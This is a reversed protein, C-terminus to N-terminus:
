KYSSLRLVWHERKTTTMPHNVPVFSVLCNQALHDDPCISYQAQGVLADQNHEHLQVHHWWRGNSQVLMAHSWCKKPLLWRLVIPQFWLFDLPLTSSLLLLPFCVSYPSLSFLTSPPSWFQTIGFPRAVSVRPLRMCRTFGIESILLNIKGRRTTTSKSM